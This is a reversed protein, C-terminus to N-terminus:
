ILRKHPCGTAADVFNHFLTPNKMSNNNNKCLFCSEIPSRRSPFVGSSSLSIASRAPKGEKAPFCIAWHSYPLRTRERSWIVLRDLAPRSARDALQSTPMSEGASTWVEASPVRFYRKSTRQGTAAPRSSTEQMSVTMIGSLSRFVRQTEDWAPQLIPQLNQM